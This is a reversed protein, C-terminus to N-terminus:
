YRTMRLNPTLFSILTLGDGGGGGPPPPPPTKKNKKILNM